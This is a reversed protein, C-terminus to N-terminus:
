SYEKLMQVMEEQTLDDMSERKGKRPKKLENHDVIDHLILINNEYDFKYKLILDGEIHVDQWQRQYKGKLRHNGKQKGIPGNTLQKIINDLKDVQKNKHKRELQKRGKKYGPESTINFM